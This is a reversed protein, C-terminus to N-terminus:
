AKRCPVKPESNMEQKAFIGASRTKKTLASVDIGTTQPRPPFYTKWPVSPGLLAEWDMHSSVGIISLSLLFFINAENIIKWFVCERPIPNLSCKSLQAKWLLTISTMQHTQGNITRLTHGWIPFYCSKKESEIVNWKLVQCHYEM